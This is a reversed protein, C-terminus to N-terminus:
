FLNEPLNVIVYMYDTVKSDTKVRMNWNGNRKVNKDGDALTSKFYVVGWGGVFIRVCAHVYACVGVCM